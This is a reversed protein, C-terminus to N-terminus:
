QGSAVPLQGFPSHVYTQEPWIGTALPGNAIESM